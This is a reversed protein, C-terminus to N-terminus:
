PVVVHVIKSESRTISAEFRKRTSPLKGDYRHSDTLYFSTLVFTMFSYPTLPATVPIRCNRNDGITLHSKPHVVDRHTEARDDYDFRIPVPVVSREVVDAYIEDRLYMDPDEQFPELEPSPFLGLRHWELKGAEFRYTMQVITGDLMKANYARERVLEQYLDIYEIRKLARGIYKSGPFLVEETDKGVVRRRFAVTQDDALGERVLYRVIRNIQQETSAASLM